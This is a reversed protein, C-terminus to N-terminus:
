NRIVGLTIYLFSGGFQSVRNKAKLKYETGQFRIIQRILDIGAYLLTIDDPGIVDEYGIGVNNCDYTSLYFIGEVLDRIGAKQLDKDTPNPIFQCNLTVGANAYKVIGGYEDRVINAESGDYLVCDTGYCGLMQSVERLAAQAESALASM